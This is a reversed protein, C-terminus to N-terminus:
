SQQWKGMNQCLLQIIFLGLFTFNVGWKDLKYIDIEKCELLVDICESAGHLAAMFIPTQGDNNEENIKNKLYPLLIKLVEPRNHYIALHLLCWDPHDSIPVDLSIKPHSLLLKLSKIDGTTVITEIPTVGNRDRINVDTLHFYILVQVIESYKLICALHLPTRGEITICNVEINPQELLFIVIDVMNSTVAFHLATKDDRGAENINIKQSSLLARVSDPDGSQTAYHLANMGEKSKTSTMIEEHNILLLIAETSHSIAAIHLPVIGDNPDFIANVDQGKELCYMMMELNSSKISNVFLQNHFYPLNKMKADNIWDFVDMYHYSITLELADKWNKTFSECAKIIELNGGAIAYKILDKPMIAGNTQLYNFCKQSGYFASFQILSPMDFQSLSSFDYVTYHIRQNIKFDPQAAFTQFQEIDDNVLAFEITSVKYFKTIWHDLDDWDESFSSFLSLVNEKLFYTYSTSTNISQVISKYVNPEYEKIYPAFWCFIFNRAVFLRKNKLFPSILTMLEETSLYGQKVSEYIFALRFVEYNPKPLIFCVCRKLMSLKNNINAQSSLYISLRVLYPMSKPRLYPIKLINNALTAVGEGTYILDSEMVQQKILEMNPENIAYLLRQIEIINLEHELFDHPFCTELDIM